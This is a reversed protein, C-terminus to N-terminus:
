FPYLYHLGQMVAMYYLCALIPYHPNSSSSSSSSSDYFM